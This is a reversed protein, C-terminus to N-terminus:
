KMIDDIDKQPLKQKGIDQIEKNTLVKKKGSNKILIYLIASSAGGNKPNSNIGLQKALFISGEGIQNKPGIDAFIAFCSKNNKKNVVLAIDGTSFDKSFSPPLAIFPITESNVYRNPDSYKKTIDQLSTTSIYYGSAPDTDKQILPNGDPKENDTVLAWWNGQKGANALYDLAKSDDKHYAKPAGDADIKLRSTFTIVDKNKWEYTTLSGIIKYTIPLPQSYGFITFILFLQTIFTKM